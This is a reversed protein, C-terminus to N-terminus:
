IQIGLVRSLEELSTLGDNLCQIGCSILSSRNIEAYSQSSYDSRLELLATRGTYGTNECDTCIGPSYVTNKVRQQPSLLNINKQETLSVEYEQRCHPCLKRVLRQSLVTNIVQRSLEKNIGLEELRSLVQEIDGTHLSTLVLHGTLAANIALGATESDRMEGIMIVDPDQRLVHRLIVPFSLGIKHHIQIQQVGPIRYEVPDEITIIKREGTSLERLLAHLSTTKGSGTPGAAIILGNPRHISRRLESIDSNSFGLETLEPPNNNFHFLRITISEGEITPIVSLRADIVGEINTLSMRGDQPLRREIIDIHAMVKIRASVASAFCDPITREHAMIGDMRFRVIMGCRGSEIHIDSANRRVAELFINNILNIVPADDDIVNLQSTGRDKMIRDKSHPGFISISAADRSDDRDASIQQATYSLLSQLEKSNIKLFRITRKDAEHLRHYRILRQKLQTNESDCMGIIIEEESSRLKIARQGQIFGRHYQREPLPIYQEIAAM